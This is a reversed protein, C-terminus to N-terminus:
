HPAHPHTPHTLHPYGGEGDPKSIVQNTTGDIGLIGKPGKPGSTGKKKDYVKKSSVYIGKAIKRIDSEADRIIATNESVKKEAEELLTEIL